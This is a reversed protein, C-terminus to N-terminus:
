QPWSRSRLISSSSTRKSSISPGRPPEPGMNSTPATCTREPSNLAKLLRLSLIPASVMRAEVASGVSKLATRASPPSYQSPRKKWFGGIRPNVSAFGSSIQTM